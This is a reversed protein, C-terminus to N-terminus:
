GIRRTHDALTTGSNTIALGRRLDIPDGVLPAYFRLASPRILRPSVGSALAAIEDVNLAVNWVAAEAIRGSLPQSSYTSGNYNMGMDVRDITIASKSTTNNGPSGGNIYATRNANGTFVGCAHYWTNATYGTSTNANAPTSSSRHNATVPDGATNGSALLRFGGTNDVTDLSIINQTVTISTSRFWAALTLPVTSPLDTSDESALYDSTGNFLRAM